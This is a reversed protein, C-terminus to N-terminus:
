RRIAEPTDLALDLLSAQVPEIGLAERVPRYSRRHIPTVGFERLARFHAATAYGKHSAFGYEPFKCDFEIMMADRTTKALISAAAISASQSDGRIIGKQPVSCGPITRADVLLYEPEMSLGDVARKMALLGAHYVNLEDIEEVEAIGISWAFADEKIRIALEERRREDLKKSDDLDRQTYAHPLIVAGAVLPGAMPGVGAEDVGAIMRIGGSWLESEFKLLRHLRLRETNESKIHSRISAALARAALRPDAELAELLGDPLTSNEGLYRQRLTSVPSRLIEEINQM